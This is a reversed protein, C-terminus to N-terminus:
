RQRGDQGQVGWKYKLAKCGASIQALSKTGNLLQAQLEEGISAWWIIRDKGFKVENIGPNNSDTVAFTM